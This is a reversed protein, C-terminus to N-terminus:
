SGNIWLAGNPFRQASSQREICRICDHMLFSPCLPIQHLVRKKIALNDREIAFRMAIQPDVKAGFPEAKSALGVQNRSYDILETSGHRMQGAGQERSALLRRGHEDRAHLWADIEEKRRVSAPTATIHRGIQSPIGED